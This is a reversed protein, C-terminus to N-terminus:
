KKRCHKCEGFLYVSYHHMIFNPYLKRDLAIETSRDKVKQTRGCKQCVITMTSHDGLNFEYQMEHAKDQRHLRFILHAKEFLALTNYVTAVSIFYPKVVQYVQTATFNGEHEVIWHLILKRESTLRLHNLSIYQMLLLEAQDYLSPEEM